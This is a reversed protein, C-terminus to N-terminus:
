LRKPLVKRSMKRERRMDNKEKGYNMVKQIERKKYLENRLRKQATFLFERLCTFVNCFIKLIIFKIIKFKIKIFNM